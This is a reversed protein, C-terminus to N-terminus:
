RAPAPASTPAPTPEISGNGQIMEIFQRALNRNSTTWKSGDAHGAAKKLWGLAEANDQAVSRGELYMFGVHLEGGADGQDAAKRYWLAAQAADPAVGQGKQYYLGLGVQAEGAGQEAAKRMWSVAQAPDQAVGHGSVYMYALNIQGEAHGQEAAKRFWAVAEVEDKAVGFRGEKYILGLENQAAADGREAAARTDSLSPATTPQAATAPPTTDSAFGPATLCLCLVIAAAVNKM